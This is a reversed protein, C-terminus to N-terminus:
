VKDAKETEDTATELPEDAYTRINWDVSYLTKNWRKTGIKIGFHGGSVSTPARGEETEIYEVKEWDEDDKVVVAQIPANQAARSINGEWDNARYKWLLIPLLIVSQLLRSTGLPILRSQM